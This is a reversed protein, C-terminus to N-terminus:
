SDEEPINPSTKTLDLISVGEVYETTKYQTVWSLNRVINAMRELQAYARDLKSTQKENLETLLLLEVIGMVSTLPQNLEHATAGAIAVAAARKETNILRNTASRLRTALSDSERTDRFILIMAVVSNDKDTVESASLLIPIHEGSRARLHTRHQELRRQQSTNISFAVRKLESSDAFIDEIRLEQQVHHRSYALLDEAARNFVMIKGDNSSCVIPDPSSDILRELLENQPVVKGNTVKNISSNKLLKELDKAESNVKSLRVLLKVRNSLISGKIPKRIVDTAGASFAVEAENIDAVIALIPLNANAKRMGICWERADGQMGLIAIHSHIETDLKNTRELQHGDRKLARATSPQVGYLLLRAV